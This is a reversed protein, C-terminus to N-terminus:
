IKMIFYLAYYPPRNEHKESWGAYGISHSHNGSWEANIIQDGDSYVGTKYKYIDSKSKYYETEICSYDSSGNRRRPASSPDKENDWDNKIDSDWFFYIGHRHNWWSSIAHSHKPIQKEKLFRQFIVWGGGSRQPYKGLILSSFLPFINFFLSKWLSRLWWLLWLGGNFLFVVIHPDIKM